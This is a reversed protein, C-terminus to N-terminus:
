SRLQTRSIPFINSLPASTNRLLSIIITLHSVEFGRGIVYILKYNKEISLFETDEDFYLVYNNWFWVTTDTRKM